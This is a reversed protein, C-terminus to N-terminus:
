RLCLRNEVPDIKGKNETKLMQRKWQKIKLPFSDKFSDSWCRLNADIAGPRDNPAIFSL